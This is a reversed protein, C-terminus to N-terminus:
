SFQSSAVNAGNAVQSRHDGMWSDSCVMWEVTPILPFVSCAIQAWSVRKAKWWAERTTWITFFRGAICSVQTWDRPRSSGKSFSISFWELIRAQLIGPVPSGPLCLGHCWLSDFAVWCSVCVCKCSTKKTGRLSWTPSPLPVGSWYEQKSFGVSLPAQPSCDMPYRLTLCSQAVESESKVKM